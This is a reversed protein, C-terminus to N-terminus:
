NYYANQEREKRLRSVWSRVTTESVDYMEALETATHDQYLAILLEPDPRKSPRGTKKYPIPEKKKM